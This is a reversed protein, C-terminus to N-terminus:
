FDAVVISTLDLSHKSLRVTKCSPKRLKSHVDVEMVECTAQNTKYNVARVNIPFHENYLRKSVKAGTLIRGLGM